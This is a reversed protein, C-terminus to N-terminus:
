GLEKEVRSLLAEVVADRVELVLAHGRSLLIAGLRAEGLLHSDVAGKDAVDRSCV